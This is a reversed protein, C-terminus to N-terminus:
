KVRRRCAEKYAVPVDAAIEAVRCDYGISSPNGIHVLGYIMAMLLMTVMVAGVFAQKM